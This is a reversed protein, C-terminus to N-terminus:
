KPKTWKRLAGASKESHNRVWARWSKTSERPESQRAEDAESAAVQQWYKLYELSETLEQPEKMCELITELVHPWPTKLEEGYQHLQVLAWKQTM